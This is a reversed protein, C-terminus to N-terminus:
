FTEDVREKMVSFEELFHLRDMMSVIPFEQSVFLERCCVLMRRLSVFRKLVKVYSTMVNCGVCLLDHRRVQHEYRHRKSSHRQIVNVGFKITKDGWFIIHCRSICM